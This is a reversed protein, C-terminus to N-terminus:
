PIAGLSYTFRKDWKLGAIPTWRIYAKWHGIATDYDVVYDLSATRLLYKEALIRKMREDFEVKARDYDDFIERWEEPKVTMM